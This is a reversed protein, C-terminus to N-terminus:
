ELYNLNIYFFISFVCLFYTLVCQSSLSLHPPSRFTIISHSLPLPGRFALNSHYSKKISGLTNGLVPQLSFSNNVKPKCHSCTAIFAHPGKEENRVATFYDSLHEWPNGRSETTADQHQPAASSVEPRQPSTAM